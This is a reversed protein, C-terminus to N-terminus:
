TNKEISIKRKGSVIERHVNAYDKSTIEAFKATDLNREVLDLLLKNSTEVRKFANTKSSKGTTLTNKYKAKNWANLLQDKKEYDFTTIHHHMADLRGSM